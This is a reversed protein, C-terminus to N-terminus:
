GLEGNRSETGSPLAPWGHHCHLPQRQGQLHRRNSSVIPVHQLEQFRGLSCLVVGARDPIGSVFNSTILCVLTQYLAIDSITNLLIVNKSVTTLLLLPRRGYHDSMAGTVPSALFQLLSFLSGILGLLCLSLCVFLTDSGYFACMQM